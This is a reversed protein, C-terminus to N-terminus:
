EKKKQASGFTQFVVRSNKDMGGGYGKSGFYKILVSLTYKKYFIKAKFLSFCAYKKVSFLTRPMKKGLVNLFHKRMKKQKGYYEIKGWRMKKAGGFFIKMKKKKGGM